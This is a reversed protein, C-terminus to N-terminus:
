VTEVPFGPFGAEAWSDFAEDNEVDSGREEAMTMRYFLFDAYGQIPDDGHWVQTIREVLPEFSDLLWRFTGLNKANPSTYGNKALFYNVDGLIVKAQNESAEVGTMDRLRDSNFTRGGVKTRLRVVDGEGSPELDIDDVFFGLDNLRAIRQRIKFGETRTIVLETFLEEWLAHYRSAVDEGLRLDANEIDVGGMAAIDAMDGALNEKMIEIDELRQGETLSPYIRSTEADIMIAEIAGADHRYLVNSLSCDGWYCGALHLEVLLGAMADLIQGRREGFGGGIV